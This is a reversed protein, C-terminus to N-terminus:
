KFNTQLECGDYDPKMDPGNPNHYLKGDVNYTILNSKQNLDQCGLYKINPKEIVCYILGSLAVLAIVVLRATKSARALGEIIFALLFAAPIISLALVEDPMNM